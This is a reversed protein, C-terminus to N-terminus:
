RGVRFLRARKIFMVVLSIHAHLSYGKFIFNLTNVTMLGSYVYCAPILCSVVSQNTLHIPHGPKLM